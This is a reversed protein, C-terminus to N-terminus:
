MSESLIREDRLSNTGEAVALSRMESERIAESCDKSALTSYYLQQHTLENPPSNESAKASSDFWPHPIRVLNRYTAGGAIFCAFGVMQLWDFKENFTSTFIMAISWVFINRLTDLVTRSTASFEKTVTNSAANLVACAFLVLVTALACEWCNGIQQLATVIDDPHGDFAQFGVLAAGAICTGFVGEWGVLLLPPIRYKKLWAEELVFQISQILQGVVVLINGLVPNSAVESSNRLSSSVGVIVLGVIVIVLGLYEHGLFRRELFFYSFVAIFLVTSGRLMQYVSASTMTLAVNCTTSATFDAIAPIVFWIPHISDSYDVGPKLEVGTLRKRWVLLRVVGLCLTEGLFMVLTQFFPHEFSSVIGNADAAHQLDAWKTLITAIVGACLFIICSAILYVKQPM